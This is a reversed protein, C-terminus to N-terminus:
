YSDDDDPYFVREVGFLATGHLYIGLLMAHAVMSTETALTCLCSGVFGLYYHHFHASAAGPALVLAAHAAIIVLFVGAADGLSPANADFSAISAIRFITHAVLCGVLSAAFVAM